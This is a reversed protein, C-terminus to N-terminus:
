RVYGLRRLEQWFAYAADARAVVKSTRWPGLSEVGGLTYKARYQRGNSPGAEEQTLQVGLKGREEFEKVKQIFEGNPNSQAM